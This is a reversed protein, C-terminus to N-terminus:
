FEFEFGIYPITGWMYASMYSNSYIDWLRSIENEHNLINWAGFYFILNSKRFQWRRDCRLALNQYDKLHDTNTDSGRIWIVGLAASLEEDVPTFARNGCWIWRASVEWNRNFKYGGSLCFIFRNDFLRNRWVGMLDRYRSRYCTLNALGYLKKSLKKQVTFEVGRAYARGSAVLPGYDRFRDNDGNVDDIIFRYPAYPSMPFSSYEKDYAELTMLTDAALLYKLGLVLHRARPDQLGANAPDQQILFLPLQQYFMGFAGHISLRRTLEWNLFFRPSIHFRDPFPAYDLRLGSSLSVRRIPHVVYTVFAAASTGSLRREVEDYDDWNRFRVNQAEIGFVFQHSPSISFHNVNRFTLWGTGYDYLEHLVGSWEYYTNESGSLSSYSISTDSFGKGGWLHRWTLGTTAYTFKERGQPDYETGSNGVVALLSLRDNPGLDYVVKGQLDSFDSPTGGTLASMLDTACRNASLMWSGKGGGLPGEFQAGLGIVNLNLQGNFRERNGERFRIDIISSLRDGYSADFGGTSIELSEVFDLNILSINGGSAGQQPFHNINPIFINDVYFGNEMPSGGRVMLDNTEEDARVIGPVSYLVRSVDNASAPDRRLEENNFRIESGGKQPSDPFYDATVTVNENISPLAVLTVNLITIRGSRVIVDSRTEPYFGDREFALVFYGLPLGEIVYSGDSGSRGNLNTGAVSVSVGALPAQTEHNLVRGKIVGSEKAAREELQIQDFGPKQVPLRDLGRLPNAGAAALVLIALLPM